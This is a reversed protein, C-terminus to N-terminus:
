LSRSERRIREGRRGKLAKVSLLDVRCGLADELELHLASVDLLSTGERFRVILDLDSGERDTGHASSGFVRPNEAGYRQLIALIRDKRDRLTHSPKM